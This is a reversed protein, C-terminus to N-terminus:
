GQKQIPNSEEVWCLKKEAEWFTKGDYIATELFEKKILDLNEGQIEFVREWKLCGDTEILSHFYLNDENIAEWRDIFFIIKNEITQSEHWYIYGNYFLTSESYWGTDLFNRIYGNIM